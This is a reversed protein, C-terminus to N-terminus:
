PCHVPLTRTLEIGEPTPTGQLAYSAMGDARAARLARGYAPDIRDAPRVERADTRQVCFVLATRRGERAEAALVELHRTGRASVADPFLAVGGEVAATVNKVEVLCDPEGDVHDMLLLDARMPREQVRVERRVRRYGSLEPLRQALVAEEVLANARGTHVGVVVGPSVEVLEWTHAYKRRPNNSRSVWVRAGPECCGMMSGTNPCHATISEGNDLTIDALFRKYRRHLTGAQLLEDFKM